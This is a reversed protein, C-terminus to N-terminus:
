SRSPQIKFPGLDPCCAGRRRDRDIAGITLDLEEYPIEEIGLAAMLADAGEPDAAKLMATPPMNMLSSRPESNLQSMVVAM